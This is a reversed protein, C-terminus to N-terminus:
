EMTSSLVFDHPWDTTYGHQRLVTALQAWHRLSHVFTHTLFKRASGSIHVGAGSITPRNNLDSETATALYSALMQRADKGIAFLDALTDRKLAYIEQAWEQGTLTRAYIWEVMFIHMVMDRVTGMRKGADGFPLDLVEPPQKELWDGWRAAEDTNYQLLDHFAVSAVSPSVMGTSAM